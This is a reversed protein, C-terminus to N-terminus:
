SLHSGIMVLPAQLYPSQIPHSVIIIPPVVTACRRTGSVCM